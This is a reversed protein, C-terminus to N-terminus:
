IKGASMKESHEQGLRTHNYGPDRPGEIQLHDRPLFVPQVLLRIQHKLGFGQVELKDRTAQRLFLINSPLLTRGPTEKPKLNCPDTVVRWTM